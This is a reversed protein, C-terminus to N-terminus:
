DGLCLRHETDLIWCDGLDAAELEEFNQAIFTREIRALDREHTPHFVTWVTEEVAYAARKTGPPSVFTAPAEIRRRGGGEDIVIVVGKSVICIHATKHIKGVVVVGKPITMERAYAGDAFYHRTMAEIDLKAADPLRQMATQLALVEAGIQRPADILDAM